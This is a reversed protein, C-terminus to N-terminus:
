HAQHIAYISREIESQVSYEANEPRVAVAVDMKLPRSDVEFGKVVHQQQSASQHFTELASASRSFSYSVAVNVQIDSIPLAAAITPITALILYKMIAQYRIEIFGRSFPLEVVNVTTISWIFKM